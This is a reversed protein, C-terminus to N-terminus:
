VNSGIRNILPLNTPSVGIGKLTALHCLALRFYMIQSTFCAIFKGSARFGLAELLLFLIKMIRLTAVTRQPGICATGPLIFYFELMWLELKSLAGLLRSLDKSAFPHQRANNQRRQKAGVM